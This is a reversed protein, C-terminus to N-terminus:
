FKEVVYGNIASFIVCVIIAALLPLLIPMNQIGPYFLAAYDARQLLSASIVAAFGVMRGLSLDTGQLVIIGAVGLALILRVASQTLINKFVNLSLFSPERVIILIIIAFIVFYIGNSILLDKWDRSNMGRVRKIGSSVIGSM